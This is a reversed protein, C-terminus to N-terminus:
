RFPLGLIYANCQVIKIKTRCNKLQISSFWGSMISMMMKFLHYYNMKIQGLTMQNMLNDADCVDDDVDDDDDDDVGDDADDDDHGPPM